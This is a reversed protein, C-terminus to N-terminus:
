FATVVAVVAVAATIAVAKSRQLDISIQVYAVSAVDTATVAAVAATIAEAKPRQLDRSIQVCSVSAVDLQLLM